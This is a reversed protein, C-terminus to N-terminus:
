NGRCGVASDTPRSNGVKEGEAESSIQGGRVVAGIQIFLKLIEALYISVNPYMSRSLYISQPVAACRKEHDQDQDDDEIEISRKRFNKAKM